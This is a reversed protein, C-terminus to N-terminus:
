CPHLLILSWSAPDFEEMEAIPSIKNLPDNLLSQIQTHQTTNFALEVWGLIM